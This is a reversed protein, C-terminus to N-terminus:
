VLRRLQKIVDYIQKLAIVMAPGVEKAQDIVKKVENLTVAAGAEGDEEVTDRAANVVDDAEDLVKRVAASAELWEDCAAKLSTASGSSISIRVISYVVPKVWKLMVASKAVNGVKKFFSSGWM